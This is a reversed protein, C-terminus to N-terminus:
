KKPSFYRYGAVSGRGERNVILTATPLERTVVDVSGDTCGDVTILVEDPLPDLQSLVRLTRTLDASRNKTTIMISLSMM